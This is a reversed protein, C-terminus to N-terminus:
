WSVLYSVAHHQFFLYNSMKDLLKRAKISGSHENDYECSGGHLQIWLWNYQTQGKAGLESMFIIDLRDRLM